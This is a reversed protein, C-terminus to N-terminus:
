FSFSYALKAGHEQYKGQYCRGYFPELEIIGKKFVNLHFYGVLRYATSHSHRFGLFGHDYEGFTRNDLDQVLHGRLGLVLIEAFAKEIGLGAHIANKWIYAASEDGQPAVGLRSWSIGLVPYVAIANQAQFKYVGEVLFHFHQKNSQKMGSLHLKTNIGEKQEYRHELGALIVRCKDSGQSHEVFTVSPAFVSTVCVKEEAAVLTTGVSLFISALLALFKM